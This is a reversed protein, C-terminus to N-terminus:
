QLGAQPLKGSQLTKQMVIVRIETNGQSLPVPHHIEKGLNAITDGVDSQSSAWGPIGIFTVAVWDLWAGEIHSCASQESQYLAISNLAIASPPSM